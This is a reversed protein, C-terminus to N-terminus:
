HLVTGAASEHRTSVHTLCQQKIFASRWVEIPHPGIETPRSNAQQISLLRSKSKRWRQSERHGRHKLDKKGESAFFLFFAAM